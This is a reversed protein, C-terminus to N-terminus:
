LLPNILKEIQDIFDGATNLDDQLKQADIEFVDGYDTQQRKDFIKSYFKGLEVPVLGTRIFHRNFLSMVGSHKSSSLDRTMLLASAAYFCAYYLRNSAGYYHNTELMVRAEDLTENARQLKFKILDREGATM